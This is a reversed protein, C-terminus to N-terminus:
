PSVFIAQMRRLNAGPFPASAKVDALFAEVAVRKSREMM